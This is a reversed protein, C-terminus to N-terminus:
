TPWGSSATTPSSVRGCWVPSQARVDLLSPLVAAPQSGSTRATHRAGAAPGHSGPCGDHLLDPARPARRRAAARVRSRRATARRAPGGPRRAGRRPLGRAAAPRHRAPQRGARAEDANDLRGVVGPLPSPCASCCCGGCGPARRPLRARRRASCGCRSPADGEDVLAPYGRVTTAPRREHAVIEPLEGFSWDDCAPASSDAAARWRPRAVPPRLEESCRELDKGQAVM